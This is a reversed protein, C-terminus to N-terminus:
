GQTFWRAEAQVIQSPEGEEDRQPNYPVVQFEREEFPNFSSLSANTKGVVTDVKKMKGDSKEYIHYHVREDDTGMWSLTTEFGTLGFEVNVQLDNVATLRIPPEIDQTGEPQDFAVQINQDDMPFESLISKFLHTPYQSGATLYHDEDNQDHGMWVAGTVEPTYGTFWIDRAAGKVSEYSTTGTKGALAYDYSGHSGTGDEVVAELMRTMSWATQPSVVRDSELDAGEVIDGHRNTMENIVYPEHYVGGTAYPVYGAALDLPTVGNELGGLAVALGQDSIDLRHDELYAKSKEVGMENLLWVAPANISYKLADYMLQEGQYTGSLNSPQYDGYDLLEDRLLSYPEYEGSELAPGYVALPKFTSGPQRKVTVRNLNRTVYERGGQAAVVAGTENDLLVFAGEVPREGPSDPFLDGNQFHHFAVRQKEKDLPVVIEYGGRRVEGETLQYRERAEDIVMDVYTAFAQDNEFRYDDTGLTTGQLRVAEEASIYDQEEMVNLVLNRRGKARQEDRLPSYSNPGKPLAALLAGEQVNLEEVDKDFYQKSAAQVGHAGHGFYIRNLYMELIEDKDYRRELNMAILIEKTKRIFTQEHSLFTNKALQQTITSGGEVIGGAVIDRYLARGIARLDIGTHDYFRADEIAIFAQQVHEPVDDISVLERNEDFLKAITEGELNVVTSTESLVLEKDDIAYDGFLISGLYITFGVILVFLLAAAGILIRKKLLTGGKEIIITIM